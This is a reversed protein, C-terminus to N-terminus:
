LQADIDYEAELQAHLDNLKTQIEISKNAICARDSSEPPAIPEGINYAYIGFPKPFCMKDWSRLRKSKTPMCAIPLVPLQTRQSLASIGHKAVRRPGRPGDITIGLARVTPAREVMAALAERGGKSSSGRLTYIGFYKFLRSAIEGDFSGSVLAHIGNKGFQPLVTFATEHWVAVLFPQSNEELTTFHETGSEVIRNTSYLFRVLVAALIPAVKLILSKKFPLSAVSFTDNDPTTV